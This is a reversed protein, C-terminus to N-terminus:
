LKILETLHFEGVISQNCTKLHQLNYDDAQKDFNKTMARKM